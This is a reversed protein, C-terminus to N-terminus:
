RSEDKMALYPSGWVARGNFHHNDAFDAVLTLKKAGNLKIDSFWTAEEGARCVLPGAVLKGDLLVSFAISAKVRKRAVAGDVGVASSFSEFRSDLAYHVVSRTHMSLGRAFGRNNISLAGGKLSRDKHLGYLLGGELYPTEEFGTEKLDSLHVCRGQRVSIEAISLVSLDMTTGAGHKFRIAGGPSKSVSGTLRTGDRFFVMVHTGDIKAVPESEALSVSALRNKKFSFLSEEDEGWEFMAGSKVLRVLSGHVSDVGTKSRVLLVDQGGDGVVDAKADLGQANALCVVKKLVDLPITIQGAMSDVRVQDFDGDVVTGYIVDGGALEFRLLSSNPGYRAVPPNGFRLQVVQALSISIDKEAKADRFVVEKKASISQLRGDHISGDVLRLTIQSQSTSISGLWFLVILMLHRFSTLLYRWGIRTM